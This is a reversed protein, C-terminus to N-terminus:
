VALIMGVAALVVIGLYSAGFRLCAALTTVADQISWPTDPNKKRVSRWHNIGWMSDDAAPVAAERIVRVKNITWAIVVGVFGGILGYALVAIGHKAKGVLWDITVGAVFVLLAITAFVAVGFLIQEWWDLSQFWRKGKKGKEQLRDALVEIQDDTLGPGITHQDTM